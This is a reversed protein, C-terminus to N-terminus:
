PKKGFLPHLVTDGAKIGLKASVGGNLELVSRVDEGSSITRTSHPETNEAIRAITGDKRIFLMDLPIFTDKMWMAVPGDVGFDFLMGRDAPLYRRFMLGRAREDVTRAVEVEFVHVGGSGRISLRELGTQAYSHAVAALLLPLLFLVSRRIAGVRRLFAPVPVM